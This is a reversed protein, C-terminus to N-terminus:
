RNAAAVAANSAKINDLTTALSNSDVYPSTRYAFIMQDGVFFFSSMMVTAFTQGNEAKAKQIVGFYCVGPAEDVVGLSKIGLTDYGKIYQEAKVKAEEYANDLAKDGNARQQDCMKKIIPEAAQDARKPRFAKSAKYALTDALGLDTDKRWARLQGCDAYIALVLNRDDLERAKAFMTNDIANGDELECLGVAELKITTSNVTVERAIAATSFVIGAVVAIRFLM